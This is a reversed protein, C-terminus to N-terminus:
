IKYLKLIEQVLQALEGILNEGGALRVFMGLVYASLSGYTNVSDKFHVVILLQPFLIVYVLDSCM